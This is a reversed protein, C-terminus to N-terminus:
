ATMTFSITTGILVAVPQPAITITTIKPVANVRITDYGVISKGKSNTKSVSIIVRDQKVDTAKFTYLSDSKSDLTGVGEVINWKAGKLSVIAGYQDYAVARIDLQQGPAVTTSAAIVDISDLYGDACDCVYKNAPLKISCEAKQNKDYFTFVQENDENNYMAYCKLGTSKNLYCTSTPNDCHMDWRIDGYTLHSHTM